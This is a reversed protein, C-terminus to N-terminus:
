TGRLGPGARSKGCDWRSRHTSSSEPFSAIYLITLGGSIWFAAGLFAFARVGNVSFHSLLFYATLLDGVCVLTGTLPSFEAIAPGRVDGFRLAAFMLLTFFIVFAVANRVDKRPARRDLLDAIAPQGLV